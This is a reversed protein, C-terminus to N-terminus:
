YVYITIDGDTRTEILMNNGDIFYATPRFTYVGPPWDIAFGNADVAGYWMSYSRTAPVTAPWPITCPVYQCPPCTGVPEMMIVILASPDPRAYYVDITGTFAIGEYFDGQFWDEYQGCMGSTIDGQFPNRVQAQVSSTTMVMFCLILFARM